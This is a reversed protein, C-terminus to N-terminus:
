RRRRDDRDNIVGGREVWLALMALMVLVIALFGAGNITPAHFTAWQIVGFILAVLLLALTLPYRM